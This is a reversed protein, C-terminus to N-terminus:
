QGNIESIVFIVALASTTIVDTYMTLNLISNMLESLLARRLGRKTILTTKSVWLALRNLLLVGDNGDFLMNEIREFIESANLTLMGRWDLDDTTPESQNCFMGYPSSKLHVMQNLSHSITGSSDHRICHELMYLCQRVDSQCVMVLRRLVQPDCVISERECIMHLHQRVADVSLSPVSISTCRSQLPTIIKDLHNCILIYRTSHSSDEMIRRLAYQTDGTLYDAEDMIVLYPKQKGSRPRMMSLSTFEKIKERMVRIGRDSSADMYLVGHQRGPEGREGYIERILISVALNKGSATPGHLITNVINNNRVYELFTDVLLQQDVIEELKTPVYRTVLAVRKDSSGKSSRESSISVSSLGMKSVKKSKGDLACISSM